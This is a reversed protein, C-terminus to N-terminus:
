PRGGTPLERAAQELVAPDVSGVLLAGGGRVGGRVVMSVLPTGLRVAQGSAVQVPAGGAATAGQLARDALRGSLPILAFTSLGGGYVGVGPLQDTFQMRDRGALRPPPTAANLVRLAGSVDAAQVTVAGAGPPVTPRLVDEAPARLEVEQMETILVPNDDGRGALEVRLPLGSPPDVWVDVRGVTTDPAGPTVRLGAASRGAIRRAPLVSVPDTASLGVLRRALDPPLLDAARPLRVPTTGIVRTLQNTGSDWMSENGGDHYTGREGAIALEDVRWHDPAAVFARIRTTTTLLATVQELQPLDPLPLRGTAQALGTYPQTASALLRTRLQDAPEDPVASAPLVNEAIGLGLLAAGGAAVLLWRRNFRRAAIVSASSAV